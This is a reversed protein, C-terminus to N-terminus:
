SPPYIKNYYPLCGNQLIYYNMFGREQAFLYSDVKLFYVWYVVINISTNSFRYSVLHQHVRRRLNKSSGIYLINGNYYTMFYVACDQPLYKVHSFDYQVKHFSKNPISAINM